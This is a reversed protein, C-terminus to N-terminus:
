EARGRAGATAAEVGQAYVEHLMAHLIVRPRGGAHIQRYFEQILQKCLRENLLVRPPTAPTANPM